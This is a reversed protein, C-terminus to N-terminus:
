PNHFKELTTKKLYRALDLNLPNMYYMRYLGISNDFELNITLFKISKLEVKLDTLENDTLTRFYQIVPIEMKANLVPANKLTCSNVRSNMTKTPSKKIKHLNWNKYM